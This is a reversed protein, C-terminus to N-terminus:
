RQRKRFFMIFASSNPLSTVKNKIVLEEPIYTLQLGKEKRRYLFIIEHTRDAFPFLMSIAGSYHPQIKEALFINFNVKGKEESNIPVINSPVKNRNTWQIKFGKNFEIRGYYSSEYVRGKSLFKKYQEERREKEKKIAEEISLDLKVYKERFLTGRYEYIATIEDENVVKIKLDGNSFSITDPPITTM